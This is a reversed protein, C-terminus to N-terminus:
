PCIYVYVYMPIYISRHYISEYGCTDHYSPNCAYARCGRVALETASVWAKKVYMCVHVHFSM